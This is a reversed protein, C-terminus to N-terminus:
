TAPYGSAKKVQAAQWLHRRDHANIVMLGTGVTFRIVGVFPNKFRLRNVDLSRSSRVVERLPEHSKLFTELLEDPDGKPSPIIQAPAKFKRRAPADMSQVFWRSLLGPAIIQTPKKYRGPCAAVTNQLTDAYITNVTALHQLCQCISWAGPSPQWNGQEISLGKVLEQAEEEAADLSALVSDLTATLKPV